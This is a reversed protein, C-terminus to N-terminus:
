IATTRAERTYIEGFGARIVDVVQDLRRSIHDRLLTTSLDVDRLRLARVIELHEAQTHVRRGKQMDIWRVFHIRSNVSRLMRACEENHSLLAIREHFQEDLRLLRIAQLDDTEDKSEHVFGEIGRLEEDSARECALRVNVVELACRFEYLDFVQQADLPRCYFGKNPESTLFGETVLRNLAERLPTRSVDLAKSLEIENIREGPRFQYTIAMNKVTEYVRDSTRVVADTRSALVSNEKIELQKIM